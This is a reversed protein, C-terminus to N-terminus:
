RVGAQYLRRMSKRVNTLTNTVVYRNFSSIQQTLLDEDNARMVVGSLSTESEPNEWGGGYQPCIRPRLGFGTVTGGASPSAGFVGIAYQGSADAAIVGGIVPRFFHGTPACSPLDGTIETLQDAAADYTFYRTFIGRLYVALSPGGVESLPGPYYQYVRYRAVSSDGGFDLTLEKGLVLDQWVVPHDYDGGYTDPNLELPVALTVQTSGNNFATMLPAGHVTAPNDPFFSYADGSEYAMGNGDLLGFVEAHMGRVYGSVNLFQLGNWTWHWTNGGAVLNSDVGITRGQLHLLVELQNNFRPYGMVGLPRWHTYGALNEGLHTLAHDGNKPNFAEFMPALGPLFTGTPFTCTLPGELTYGNVPTVSDMHDPGNYYRNLVKSDTSTCWSPVYFIQGELPFANREEPNFTTMRDSEGVVVRWLTNQVVPTQSWAPLVLIFVLALMTAATFQRRQSNM